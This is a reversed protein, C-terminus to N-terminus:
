HVHVSVECFGDSDVNSEFRGILPHGSSNVPTATGNPGVYMPAGPTISGSTTPNLNNIRGRWERKVLVKSNIPVTNPDQFNFPIRSTDYDDVTNMLIGAPLKGSSNAFAQVTKASQDMGTYFTGTGICVLSGIEAETTMIFSLDDAYPNSVQHGRIAM